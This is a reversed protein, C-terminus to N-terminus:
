EPCKVIEVSDAGSIADGGFTEGVLTAIMDDCAIGTEQVRFHLLIDMDGDEDVDEVHSRGHSETARSPGFLVTEWDVQTADFVDTTLIALPINQKSKLNISNPDSGPKIDISVELSSPSDFAYVAGSGPIPLTDDASWNVTGVLATDGSLGIRLCPVGLRDDSAKDSAVFKAVEAWSEGFRRFAYASGHNIVSGTSDNMAVLVVRDGNIAGECGFADGAETDSGLLTAQQSWVGTRRIFVSTGSLLTDGDISLTGVNGPPLVAQETWTGADRVYVYIGALSSCAVTDSDIVPRGCNPLQTDQVWAGANRTYLYGGALVLTNGDVDVWSASAATPSPADIRAQQTWTDGSRVFIFTAGPILPDPGEFDPASIAVTDDDIAVHYGFRNGPDIEMEWPFIGAQETWGDNGRVFIYVSGQGSGPDDDMDASIVATNGDVDVAWGFTMGSGAGEVGIWEEPLLIQAENQVPTDALSCNVILVGGIAALARSIQQLRMRVGIAVLVSSHRQILNM